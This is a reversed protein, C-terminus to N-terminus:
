EHELDNILDSIETKIDTVATQLERLRKVAIAVKDSKARIQLKKQLDALHERSASPEVSARQFLGPKDFFVEAKLATETKITKTAKLIEPKSLLTHTLGLADAIFRRTAGTAAIHQQILDWLLEGENKIEDM